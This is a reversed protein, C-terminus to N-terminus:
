QFSPTRPLSPHLSYVGERMLLGLASLVSNLPRDATNKKTDIFLILCKYLSRWQWLQTVLNTRFKEIRNISPSFGEAMYHCQHQQYVLGIMTAKQFIPQYAMVIWVKHGARGQFLM